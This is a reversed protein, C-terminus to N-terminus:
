SLRTNSSSYKGQSSDILKCCGISVYNIAEQLALTLITMSMKKQLNALYIEIYKKREDKNEKFKNVIKVAKDYIESSRRPIVVLLKYNDIKDIEFLNKKKLNKLISYLAALQVVAHGIETKLIEEKESKLRKFELLELTVKDNEVRIVMFDPHAGSYNFLEKLLLTSKGKTRKEKELDALLFIGNISVDTCCKPDEAADCVCVTEEDKCTILQKM